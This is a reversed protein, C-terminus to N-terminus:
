DVIIPLKSIRVEDLGRKENEYGIVLLVGDDPPNERNDINIATDAARDFHDQMLDGRVTEFTPIAAM